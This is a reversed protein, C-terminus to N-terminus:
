QGPTARDAFVQQATRVFPLWTQQTENLLNYVSSAQLQEPTAKNLIEGLLFFDNASSDVVRVALAHNRDQENFQDRPPLYGQSWYNTLASYYYIAIYCTITEAVLRQNGEQLDQLIDSFGEAANLLRDLQQSQQTPRETVFKTMRDLQKFTIKQLVSAQTKIEALATSVNEQINRSQVFFYLSLGIAVLALVASVASSILSWLDPNTYEMNLM